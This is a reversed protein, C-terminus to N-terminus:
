DFLFAEEKDITLNVVCVRRESHAVEHNTYLLVDYSVLTLVNNQEATNLAHISDIVEVGAVGSAYHLQVRPVSQLKQYRTGM